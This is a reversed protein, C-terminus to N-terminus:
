SVAELYSADTEQVGQNKLILRRTAAPDERADAMRELNAVSHVFLVSPIGRALPVDQVSSVLTSRGIVLVDPREESILRELAARVQEAERRRYEPSVPRDPSLDEHPVIIRTLLVEPHRAAFPDGRRLMASTIPAVVRVRHGRRTLGIIIQSSVATSGGRHPALTGVCALSLTRRTQM